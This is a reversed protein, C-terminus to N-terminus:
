KSLRSNGTKSYWTASRARSGPTNLVAPVGQNGYAASAVQYHLGLGLDVSRKLTPSPCRHFNRPGLSHCPTVEHTAAKFLMFYGIVYRIFRLFKTM